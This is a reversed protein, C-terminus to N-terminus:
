KENIQENLERLYKEVQSQSLNNQLYLLTYQYIYEKDDISLKGENEIDTFFDYIGNESLEQVFKQNNLMSRLMDKKIKENEREKDILKLMYKDLKNNQYLRYSRYSVFIMILIILILIFLLM